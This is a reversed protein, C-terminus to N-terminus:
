ASSPMRSRTRDRPSPSTYLLCVMGQLLSERVPLFEGGEGEIGIYFRSAVIIGTMESLVSPDTPFVEGGAELCKLGILDVGSFDIGNEELLEHCLNSIHHLVLFNLGAKEEADFSDREGFTELASVLDDPLEYSQFGKLYLETKDGQGSVEAVAAGLMGPTNGTEIGIVTRQALGKLTNLRNEM